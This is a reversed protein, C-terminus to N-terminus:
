RSTTTVIPVTSDQHMIFSEPVPVPFLTCTLMIPRDVVLLLGLLQAGEVCQIVEELALLSVGLLVEVVDAVLVYFRGHQVM